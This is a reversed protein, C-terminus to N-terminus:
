EPKKEIITINRLDIGTSNAVINGIKAVDDRKLGTTAIIIEVSNEHIFAIGDKYGRARILSEIEMEQEMNNTIELLLKQAKNKLEKSSNPNNIMERLLSIQESRSQDRKVRYDVFFNKDSKKAEKKAKAVDISKMQIDQLKKEVKLSNDKQKNVSETEIKVYGEQSSVKAIHDSVDPTRNVIVSTVMGVWVMLVLFWGIRKKFNRKSWINIEM